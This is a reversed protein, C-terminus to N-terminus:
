QRRVGQRAKNRETRTQGISVESKEGGIKGKQREGELEAGERWM